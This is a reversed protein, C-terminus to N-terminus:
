RAVGTPAADKPEGALTKVLEHAIEDAWTEIEPWNRFDGKPVFRKAIVREIFPFDADDITWADLAGAFVRHDRADIAAVLDLVEGPPSPEPSAWKGVPGSSFVWVRRARLAAENDRVFRRAGDLWHGAYLASGIVVADFTTVSPKTEVSSITTDIGQDRLRAAIREAIEKTSGLRSAYTVLVSM